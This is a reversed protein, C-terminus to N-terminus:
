KRLQEVMEKERKQCSFLIVQRSQADLWRLTSKLRNEDYCAFADDFIVPFEEETYLLELAAMRLAFYVQEVTGHSLREAPIRRGESYLFLGGDDELLVRNYKGDTVASLIAAIERNLREGSERTQEAAAAQLRELAIEAARIRMQYQRYIDDPQGTEEIQERINQIQIRKEQLEEIIRTRTWDLRAAEDTGGREEEEVNEPRGTEEMRDSIEAGKRGALVSALLFVAGLVAVGAAPIFGWMPAHLGGALICGAIGLVIGAIGATKEARRAAGKTTYNREKQTNRLQEETEQLEQELKKVEAEVCEMRTQLQEEKREQAERWAKLDREAQRHSERLTNVAGEYDM